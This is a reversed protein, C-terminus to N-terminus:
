GGSKNYDTQKIKFEIYIFVNIHTIIM